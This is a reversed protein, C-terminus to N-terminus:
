LPAMRRYRDTEVCQHLEIASYKIEFNCLAELIQEPGFIILHPWTLITNLLYTAKESGLRSPVSFQSEDEYKLAKLQIRQSM